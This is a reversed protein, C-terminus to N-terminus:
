PCLRWKRAQVANRKTVAVKLSAKARKVKAPTTAKRVIGARRRTEIFWYAYGSKAARCAASPRATTTTVVVPSTASPAPLAAPVPFPEVTVSQPESWEIQSETATAVALYWIGPAKLYVSQSTSGSDQVAVALPSSISNLSSWIVLDRSTGDRFFSDKAEEVAQTCFSSGLMGRASCDDRVADVSSKLVSYDLQAFPYPDIVSALATSAIVRWGWKAGRDVYTPAITVNLIVGGQGVVASDAPALIDPPTAAATTASGLLLASFLVLRLLM